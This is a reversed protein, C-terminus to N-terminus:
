ITQKGKRNGKLVLGCLFFLLYHGEASFWLFGDFCRHIMKNIPNRLSLMGEFFLFFLVYVEMFGTKTKDIYFFSVM